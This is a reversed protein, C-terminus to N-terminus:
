SEPARFDFDIKYISELGLKGDKQLNKAKWTYGWFLDIEGLKTAMGKKALHEELCEFARM